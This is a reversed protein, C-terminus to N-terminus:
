IKSIKVQKRGTNNSIYLVYVGSALQSVDISNGGQKLTGSLSVTSGNTSLIRYNAAEKENNTVYLEDRCLTNEAFVKDLTTAVEKVGTTKPTFKYVTGDAPYSDLGGSVALLNSASDIVPAAPNGTLFYMMNITTLDFDVGRIFGVVPKGAALQFYDSTHSVKSPGYHLEVVNSGEYYWVQYCVSDLNTSYLDYEDWFGANFVEIKFIRSGATGSVQYRIPSVPTGMTPLARDQLDADSLFFGSVKGQTDTCAFATAFLSFDAITSDEIKFNFGIPVKYNDGNWLTTGSILTAGTLPVYTASSVALTYRFQAFSNTACLLIAPIILLFHKKM